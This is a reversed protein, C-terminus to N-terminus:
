EKIDDSTSALFLYMFIGAALYLSDKLLLAHSTDLLWGLLEPGGNEGLIVMFETVAIAIFALSSAALWRFNFDDFRIYILYTYVLVITFVAIKTGTVVGSLAASM